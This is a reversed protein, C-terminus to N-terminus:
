IDPEAKEVVAADVRALFERYTEENRERFDNMVTIDPDLGIWQWESWHVDAFETKMRKYAADNGRNAEEAVNFWEPRDGNDVFVLKGGLGRFFEIENRFRCDTIIVNQEKLSDEVKSFLRRKVSLLWIDQHFHHRFVNTGIYQLAYRPTFNPNGLERAWWADVTERWDRSEKTDGELMERPWDFLCACVDKLSAAFSDKVFNGHKLLHEAATDKGSGAFGQFAILKNQM